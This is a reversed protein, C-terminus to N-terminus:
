SYVVGQVTREEEGIKIREEKQIVDLSNNFLVSTSSIFSADILFFFNM